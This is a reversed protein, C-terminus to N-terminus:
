QPFMQSMAYAFVAFAISGILIGLALARDDGTKLMFAGAIIGGLSLLYYPILYQLGGFVAFVIVARLLTPVFLKM